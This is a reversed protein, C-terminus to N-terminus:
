FDIFAVLLLALIALAILAIAWSPLHFRTSPPDGLGGQQADPDEPNLRNPDPGQVM